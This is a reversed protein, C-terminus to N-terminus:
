RTQTDVNRQVRWSGFLTANVECKFLSQVRSFFTNSVHRSTNCFNNKTIKIKATLTTHTTAWRGLKLARLFTDAQQGFLPWHTAAPLFSLTRLNNWRDLKKM